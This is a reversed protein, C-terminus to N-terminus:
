PKDQQNLWDNFDGYERNEDNSFVHRLHGENIGANFVKELEEKSLVFVDEKKELYHTVTENWYREIKPNRGYVSVHHRGGKEIVFTRYHPRPKNEEVPVPIFVSQTKM